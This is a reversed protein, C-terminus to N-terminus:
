QKNMNEKGTFSINNRNKIIIIIVIKEKFTMIKKM